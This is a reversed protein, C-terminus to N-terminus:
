QWQIILRQLGLHLLHEVKRRGLLDGAHIRTDHAVRGLQMLGQYHELKERTYTTYVLTNHMAM